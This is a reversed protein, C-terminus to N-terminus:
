SIKIGGYLPILILLSGFCVQKLMFLRYRPSFSFSYIERSATVFNLHIKELLLKDRNKSFDRWIPDAGENCM